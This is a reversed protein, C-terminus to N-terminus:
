ALILRDKYNSDSNDGFRNYSRNSTVMCKCCSPFQFHEMVPKGDQNIALLSRYIYHQKCKSEVGLPFNQSYECPLHQNLCEEILVGQRYKNDENVITLWTNQITQGRKPHILRKRSQCLGSEDADFRVSFNEIFDDGFLHEYKELNLSSIFNSPYNPDVLCYTEGCDQTTDIFTISAKRNIHKQRSGGTDIKRTRSLSDNRYFRIRSNVDYNSLHYSQPITLMHQVTMLLIVCIDVRLEM